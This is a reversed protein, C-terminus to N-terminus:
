DYVVWTLVSDGLGETRTRGRLYQEDLEDTSALTCRSEAHYKPAQGSGEASPPLPPYSPSSPPFSPPLSPPLSELSLLQKASATAQQEGGPRWAGQRTSACPSESSLQRAQRRQRQGSGCIPLLLGAHWASADNRTQMMIMISVQMQFPKSTIFTL